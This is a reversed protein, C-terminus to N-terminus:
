EEDRFRGDGDDGQRGDRRCGERGDSGVHLQINVFYRNSRTPVEAEIRPVETETTTFPPREAKRDVNNGQREDDQGAAPM